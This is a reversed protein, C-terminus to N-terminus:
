IKQSSGLVLGSLMALWACGFMISLRQFAGAFDVIIPAQKFGIAAIIFASIIGAASIACYRVWKINDAEKFRKRMKLCALPMCVFVFLSFLDHLHGTITFQSIRLPETVPYGYVPDSSFIGAGALGLGVAGILRSIWLSNNMLFTARRFGIAFFFILTGSIIFNLQQVWGYTGISLSSVAFKLPSYDPRLQGQILFMLIFLVSGAQGFILLIQTRKSIGNNLVM